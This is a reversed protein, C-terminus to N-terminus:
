DNGGIFKYGYNRITEIWDPVGFKSRINKIHTDVTRESGEALYDLCEGLLKERSVVNGHNNALYFLIEWESKTLYIEKDNLIVQHTESNLLLKSAKLSFKLISKTTTINNTRKLLSKVRLVLEKPSFPKIVYDDAGLEFGTIRDSESTKATLFIIPTNFKKRIKKALIFGNEDPLMIDLIILDINKHELAEYVGSSKNFDFVKYNELELYSRVSERISDNDEVLIINNM